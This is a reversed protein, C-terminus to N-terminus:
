VACNKFVNHECFKVPRLTWTHTTRPVTLNSLPCLLQGALFLAKPELVSLSGFQYQYIPFNVSDFNYYSILLSHCKSFRVEELEEEGGRGEGGEEEEENDCEAGCTM